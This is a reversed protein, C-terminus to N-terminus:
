AACKGSMHKRYSLQKAACKAQRAHDMRQFVQKFIEQTRPMHFASTVVAINRWGLPWAHITASFYANGVTDYSSTEKLLKTAPVGLLLLQDACSPGEFIPFGQKTLLPPKHLTGTHPLQRQQQKQPGVDMDLCHSSKLKVQVNLQVSTDIDYHGGQSASRLM